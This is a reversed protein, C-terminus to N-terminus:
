SACSGCSRVRQHYKFDPAGALLEVLGLAELRAAWVGPLISVGVEQPAAAIGRAERLADLLDSVLEATHEYGGIRLLRLDKEARVILDDLEEAPPEPPVPVPRVPGAAAAIPGDHRRLEPGDTDSM